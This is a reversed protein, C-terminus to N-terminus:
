PFLSSVWQWILWQDEEKYIFDPFVAKLNKGSDDDLDIYLYTTTCPDKAQWLPLGQSPFDLFLVRLPANPNPVPTTVQPWLPSKCPEDEEEEWDLVVNEDVEVDRKKGKRKRNSGETQEEEGEAGGEGPIITGEAAFRSVGDDRPEPRVAARIERRDNATFSPLEVLTLAWSNFEAETIPVLSRARKGPCQSTCWPHLSRSQIHFAPGGKGNDKMPWILCKADVKRRSKKRAISLPLHLCTHPCRGFYNM